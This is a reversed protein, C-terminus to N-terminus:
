EIEVWEPSKWDCNPRALRRRGSSRFRDWDKLAMM